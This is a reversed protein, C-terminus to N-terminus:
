IKKLYRDVHASENMDVERPWGGEAHNIGMETKTIVVTNCDNQNYVPSKQTARNNPTLPIYEKDMIKSSIQNDIRAPVDEFEIPLGVRKKKKTLSIKINRESDKSKDVGDGKHKKKNEDKNRTKM